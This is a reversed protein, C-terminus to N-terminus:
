GCDWTYMVDSFDRARLKEAPIFFQCGGEDGFMILEQEHGHGDPAT